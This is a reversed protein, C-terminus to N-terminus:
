WEGGLMDIPVRALRGEPYSYTDTFSHLDDVGGVFVCNLVTDELTVPLFAHQKYTALDFEEAQYHEIVSDYEIEVVILTQRTVLDIAADGVEWEGHPRADLDGLAAELQDRADREADSWDNDIAGNGDEDAQEEIEDAVDDTDVNTSKLDTEFDGLENSSM